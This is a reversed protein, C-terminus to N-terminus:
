AKLAHIKIDPPSRVCVNLTYCHSLSCDHTVGLHKPQIILFSASGDPLPLLTKSPATNPLSSGWMM